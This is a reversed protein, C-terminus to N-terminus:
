SYCYDTSLGIIFKESNRFMIYLIDTEWNLNYELVFTRNLRILLLCGLLFDRRESKRVNYLVNNPKM